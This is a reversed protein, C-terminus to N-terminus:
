DRVLHQRAGSTREHKAGPVDVAKDSVGRLESLRKRERKGAKANRIRTKDPVIDPSEYDVEVAVEM